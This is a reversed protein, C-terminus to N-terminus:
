LMEGCCKAVGLFEVFVFEIILKMMLEFYILQLIIIQEHLNNM